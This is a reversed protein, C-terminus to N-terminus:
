LQQIPNPKSDGADDVVDPNGGDEEMRLILKRYRDRKGKCPRPKNKRTHPFHCFTCLSGNQCGVPTHVFLCPKCVGEDHSAKSVATIPDKEDPVELAFSDVSSGATSNMTLSSESTSDGGAELRTLPRNRLKRVRPKEGHGSSSYGTSVTARPSAESHPTSSSNLWSSADSFDDNDDADDHIDAWNARSKPKAVRNPPGGSASDRWSSSESLDGNSDDADSGVRVMPLGQKWAGATGGVLMEAFPQVKV